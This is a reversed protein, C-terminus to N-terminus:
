KSYIFPVFYNYVFRDSPRTLCKVFKNIKRNYCNRNETEIPMLTVVEQIELYTVKLVHYYIFLLEFKHM